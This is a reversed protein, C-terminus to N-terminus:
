QSAKEKLAQEAAMETLAHNAARGFEGNIDRLAIVGLMSCAIELRKQLSDREERLAANEREAKEARDVAASKAKLVPMMANLLEDSPMKGIYGECGLERALRRLVKMADAYDRSVARVDGCLQEVQQRLSANEVALEATADDGIAYGKPLGANLAEWKALQQRLRVLEAEQSRM